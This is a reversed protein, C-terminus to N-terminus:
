LVHLSAKPLAFSEKKTFSRMFQWSQVVVGICLGLWACVLSVLISVNVIAAIKENQASGAAGSALTVFPHWVGNGTKGAANIMYNVVVLSLATQLLQTWLPLRPWHPRILIAASRLIAFLSLLLVPLYFTHWMPGANLFSAAPGLILVPYYPLLLLWVFAMVNFILECVTKGSSAKRELKLPPLSRPDWKDGLGCKTQTREIVVFVLTIIGAALFGGTWLAGITHGIAAGLSRTNVFQVPGVIFVFVPLLIWLLSMKLVFRYAPFLTPGILYEQPRLRGAVVIPNGCEKLIASMEAEDLPRGLESEKAEVQSHLDEALEVVLDHQSAPLWFRVAQLYRDLLETPNHSSTKTM